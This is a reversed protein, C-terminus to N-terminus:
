QLLWQLQKRMRVGTRDVSAIIM